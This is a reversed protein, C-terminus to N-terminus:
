FFDVMGSYKSTFENWILQQDFNSVIRTCRTKIQLIAMCILLKQFEIMRILDDIADSTM